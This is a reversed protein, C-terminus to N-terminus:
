LLHKLKKSASKLHIAQKQMDHWLDGVKHIHKIAYVIYTHKIAYSEDTYVSLNDPM